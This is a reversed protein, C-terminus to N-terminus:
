AEIVEDVISRIFQKESRSMDFEYYKENQKTEECWKLGIYKFGAKTLVRQSAANKPDVSAGVNRIRLTSKAYEICAQVAETAFGQGWANKALHYMIETDYGRSPPNFGCVGITENTDKRVVKFPSFGKEKYMNMYYQLAQAEREKTGAGGCYQMIESDGWIQYIEDFDTLELTLYSLRESEFLIM